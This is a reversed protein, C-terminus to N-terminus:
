GVKGRLGEFLEHALSYVVWLKYPSSKSAVLCSLKVCQMAVDASPFIDIHM